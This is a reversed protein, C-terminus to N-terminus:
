EADLVLTDLNSISIGLDRIFDQMDDDTELNMQFESPTGFNFDDLGLNQLFTTISFNPLPWTNSISQETNEIMISVKFKSEDIAKRCMPCTNGGKEVWAGICKNHFRHGCRLDKVGRTKRAPNLCISCSEIEQCHVHCNKGNKCPHGQRTPSNCFAM